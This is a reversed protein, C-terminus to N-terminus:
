SFLTTKQFETIFNFEISCNRISFYFYTSVQEVSGYYRRSFVGRRSILDSATSSCRYFSLTVVSRYNGTRKLGAVFKMWTLGACKRGDM